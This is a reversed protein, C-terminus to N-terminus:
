PRGRALARVMQQAAMVPLHGSEYAARAASRRASWRESGRVEVLLRILDATASQGPTIRPAAQEPWELFQHLGTVAVPTGCALFRLVAASTEGASPSRLAVGLDAAAPLRVFDEAQVWGSFTVSDGIGLARAAAELWGRSGGEGVVYLRAAVGLARAGAIAGLLEGIGKERTLYGLHMVLLEDASVGLSLRVAQRDVAGPDAVALNVRAVRLEPLDANVQAEAWHSHVLVGDVGKLFARRAPFLFADRGGTAGVARGRVIPEADPHADLLLGEFRRLDGVALTSEVLLHHLVADHLVVSTRPMSLRDILWGHHPNNGLHVLHLEGDDPRQSPEVVPCGGFDTGPHPGDGAPSAVVRVEALRSLEPLLEAAYDAM